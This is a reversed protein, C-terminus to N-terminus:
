KVLQGYLLDDSVHWHDTRARKPRSWHGFRATGQLPYYSLKSTDEYVMPPSPQFPILIYVYRSIM